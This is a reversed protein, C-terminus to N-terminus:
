GRSFSLFLPSPPFSFFFFLLFFSCFFFFFRGGLRSLQPAFQNIEILMRIRSDSCDGRFYRSARSTSPFCFSFFLFSFSSFPLLFLFELSKRRAREFSIGFRFHSRADKSDKSAVCTRNHRLELAGVGVRPTDTFVAATRYCRPVHPFHPFDPV